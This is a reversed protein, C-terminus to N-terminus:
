DEELFQKFSKKDSESVSWIVFAIAMVLFVVAGVILGFWHIFRAIEVWPGHDVSYTRTLHVTEGIRTSTFVDDSVEVKKGDFVLFREICTYRKKSGCAYPESEFKDTVVSNVVTVDYTANYDTTWYNYEVLLAFLGLIFVLVLQSFHKYKM